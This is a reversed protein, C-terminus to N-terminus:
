NKIYRANRTSGTKKIIGGKIMSGLVQEITTASIDPLLDQFEKKSVPLFANMVAGEVRKKKSTKKTGPTPFRKGPEKYCLYLTFLFFRKRDIGPINFVAAKLEAADAPPM